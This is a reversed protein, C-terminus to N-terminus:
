VEVEVHHLKVDSLDESSTDDLCNDFIPIVLVPKTPTEIHPEGSKLASTEINPEVHSEVHPEM